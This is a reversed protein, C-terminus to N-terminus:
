LIFCISLKIFLYFLNILWKRKVKYPFSLHFIVNLTSFHLIIPSQDISSSYPTHFEAFPYYLLVPMFIFRKFCNYVNQVPIYGSLSHRPWAELVALSARASYKVLCCSTNSTCTQVCWSWVFLCIRFTIVIHLQTFCFFELRCTFSGSQSLRTRWSSGPDHLFLIFLQQNGQSPINEIDNSGLLLAKNRNWEYTYSQLVNVQIHVALVECFQM